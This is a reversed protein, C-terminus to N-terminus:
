GEAAAAPAGPEQLIRRTPFPIEIGEEVLRRYIAEHVDSLAQGQEMYDLAWFIVVFNVAFDGFKTVLVVPQRSSDVRPSERAARTLVDKVRALDSGYAVGVEVRSTVSRSPRSLNVVREKVLVSNPVILLTEDLTRILTARMGITEVDGTEGTALRIRDGARFPRDLMLTFGAFMNSLTDQAALGVALSGVGLSVVLSAPNVGFRQLVISLAVLGIFVHGLRKFLPGFERGLASVGEPPPRRSVSWDLVIAWSRALALTLILVGFVFLVADIRLIVWDPGPLRHVALWAGVLFLAYTVPHKLASLLRADVGQRVSKGIVLGLAYSLLRAAAYSAAVLALSVLAERV